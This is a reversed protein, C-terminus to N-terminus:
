FEVKPVSRGEDEVEFYPGRDFGAILAVLNSPFTEVANNLTLTSDNFIQRSVAIDGEIDSLERQLGLFSESARLEPYDEAVAFLSRLASTLMNEAKAQDAVGGAQLAVTRAEVVSEFTAREHTAYGKVTEVFNPVLDYRRKLQVDVQSWANETRNRVRVLRNYTVILWVVALVVVAIVVYLALM